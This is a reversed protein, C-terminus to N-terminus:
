QDNKNYDSFTKDAIEILDYKRKYELPEFVLNRAEREKDIDSLKGWLIEGRVRASWKLGNEVIGPVDPIFVSLIMKLIFLFHELAIFCIWQDIASNLHFVDRTFIILGM